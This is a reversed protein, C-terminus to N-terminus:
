NEQLFIWFSQPCGLIKLIKFKRPVDDQLGVETRAKLIRGYGIERICIHKREDTLFALLINEPCAFQGNRQMVPDVISLLHKPLYRLFKVM